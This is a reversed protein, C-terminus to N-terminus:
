RKSVAGSLGLNEAMARATGRMQDLAEAPIAREAEAQVEAAHHKIEQFKARGAATVRLTINRADTPAHQRSILGSREMRVLMRSLTSHPVVTEESLARINRPGGNSLVLLVRWEQFSIGHGRLRDTLMQNMRAMVRNMLYPLYRSLDVQRDAMDASGEARREEQLLTM